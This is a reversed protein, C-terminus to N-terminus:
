KPAFRGEGLAMGFWVINQAYYDAREGWLGDKYAADLHARAKEAANRDFLMWAPYLSGYLALPEPGGIQPIADPSVERPLTGNLGLYQALWTQQSLYHKAEPTRDWAYDMALNWYVRYADHGFRGRLQGDIAGPALSGDGPAISMWDPPLGTVPLRAELLAYTSAALERWPHEPAVDALRRLLAPAYYSLNLPRPEYDRAWKGPLLYWRGAIQEVEEEWTARAIARAREEYDPVNWRQAAVSLAFALIVDADSATNADLVGWGGGDRAGWKWAPLPSGDRALNRTTWALVRDFVARDDVWLARLLAYAQGESTTIGPAVAFDIVRGDAQIFKATYAQWSDRLWDAPAPAAASLLALALVASRIHCFVM